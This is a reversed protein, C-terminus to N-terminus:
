VSRWPLQKHGVQHGPQGTRRFLPGCRRERQQDHRPVGETSDQTARLVGTFALGRLQDNDDVGDLTVNSQDSRGGNVAGSRSDQM